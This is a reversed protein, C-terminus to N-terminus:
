RKFLSLLMALIWFGSLRTFPEVTVVQVISHFNNLTRDDFGPEQTGSSVPVRSDHCGMFPIRVNGPPLGYGAM